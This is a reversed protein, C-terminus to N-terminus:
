IRPVATSSLSARMEIRTMIRSPLNNGSESSETVIKTHRNATDARYPHPRRKAISPWSCPSVRAASITKIHKHHWVLFCYMLIEIIKTFKFKFVYNFQFFLFCSEQESNLFRDTFVKFFNFFRFKRFQCSSFGHVVYVLFSFILVINIIVISRHSQNGIQFQCVVFIM